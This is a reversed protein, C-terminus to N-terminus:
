GSNQGFGTDKSSARQLASRCLAMLAKVDALRAYNPRVIFAIRRHPGPENLHLATLEPHHGLLADLAMAPVLTTGLKGTVMQILTNLSTAGFGQNATQSGLKCAALIHDKLCHGEKLLMLRAQELEHSAVERKGQEVQSQHAVWYFDEQWFEFSLLGEHEFPLALVATDIQGSRVQDLLVQSQEEVVSLEFQPHQSQLEPLLRPLLYPCITPIFGVKMPFKLLGQRSHALQTLSDVELLIHRARALVQEGEPTILVKKNDREFLQLGLQKELESLASSLASQSVNCAESAKRFHLHEGVALAYRLQKLSVM